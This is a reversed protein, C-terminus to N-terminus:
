GHEIFHSNQRQPKVNEVLQGNIIKITSMFLTNEMTTINHLSYKIIANETNM